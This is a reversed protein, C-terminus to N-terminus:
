GNRSSRVIEQFLGQNRFTIESANALDWWTRNYMHSIGPDVRTLKYGRQMARLSLEVDEFSGPSFREDLLGVEDLFTRHFALCWGELYPHSEGDVISWPNNTFLTCGVLQRPDIVLPACLRELWNPDEVIVDNNLLVLYDGKANRIGTNCAIPFGQNESLIRASICGPPMVDCLAAIVCRTDDTSGNDVVIVEYDQKERKAIGELVQKTLDSHNWVPVIVSYTPKSM